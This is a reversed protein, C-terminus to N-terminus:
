PAPPYRRDIFWDQHDGRGGGQDAYRMPRLLARELEGKADASEDYPLPAAGAVAVVLALLLALTKPM